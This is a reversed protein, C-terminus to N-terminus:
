ERLKELIQRLLQAHKRNETSREIFMKHSRERRAGRAEDALRDELNIREELARLAVWLSTEIEESQAALFSDLTYRHGVLCEFHTVKGNRKEWIPGQCEPCVVPAPLCETKRSAKDGAPKASSGKATKKGKMAVGGSDPSPLRSLLREIERLNLCHDPEFARLANRPMEPYPADAPDQVIAVGGYEQIRQLGAVGDDLNGTLLVGAVCNGYNEAASRFLPDIAPRHRNEKPGHSLRVFGDELMLHYDPPAVYVRGQQIRTRDKPHEAPLEGRRAILEPMVSETHPSIHLTVFFAAPIDRRLSSLLRPVAEVGGASAGIVIINRNV